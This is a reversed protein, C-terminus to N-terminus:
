ITLLDPILMPHHVAELSVSWWTYAFGYDLSWDMEM